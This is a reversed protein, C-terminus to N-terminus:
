VTMRYAHSTDKISLLVEGRNVRIEGLKITGWMKFPEYTVSDLCLLADKQEVWAWGYRSQYFTTKPVKDQIILVKEDCHARRHVPERDLKSRPVLVAERDGFDKSLIVDPGQHRKSVSLFHVWPGCFEDANLLKGFADGDGHFFVATPARM